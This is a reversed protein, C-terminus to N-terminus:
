VYQDIFQILPTVSIFVKNKGLNAVSIDEIFYKLNICGKNCIDKPIIIFTSFPIRMKKIAYKFFRGCFCYHIVLDFCVEGIIILKKGSLHQGEFSTGEKTNIIKTSNIKLIPTTNQVKCIKLLEKVKCWRNGILVNIYRYFDECKITAGINFQKYYKLNQFFTNSPVVKQLRLKM